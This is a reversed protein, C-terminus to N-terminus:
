KIKSAKKARRHIVAGIVAGALVAAAIGAAAGALDILFDRLECSRGPVFYQHIEDSAAYLVCYIFATLRNIRFSYAAAAGLAGLVAYVTFHAAKRVIFQLNEIYEHKEQSPMDSFGSDFIGAIFDIVSASEGSSEDATKGSRNFIFASWLILLVLFLIGTKVNAPKSPAGVTQKAKIRPANKM